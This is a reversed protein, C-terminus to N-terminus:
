KAGPKWDPKPKWTGHVAEYSSKQQQQIIPDDTCFPHRPDWPEYYKCLADENDVSTQQGLVAYKQAQNIFNNFGVVHKQRHWSTPNFFGALAVKIQDIDMGLTAVLPYAALDTKTFRYPLGIAKDHAEKFAAGIETKLIEVQSITGSKKERERTKEEQPTLGENIDNSENSDNYINPDDTKGIDAVQDESELLRNKRYRSGSKGIDTKRNALLKRIKGYEDWSMSEVIKTVTKGKGNNYTTIFGLEEAKKVVQGVKEPGWSTMWSIDDYKIDVVDEGYGFVNLAAILSWINTDATEAFVRLDVPAAADQRSISRKKHPNSM